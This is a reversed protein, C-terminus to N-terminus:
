LTRLVTTHKWTKVCKENRTFYWLLWSSTEGVRRYSAISLHCSAMETHYIITSLSPRERERGRFSSESINIHSRDVLSFLTFLSLSFRFGAEKRIGAHSLVAPGAARKRKLRTVIVQTEEFTENTEAQEWWGAAQTEPHSHHRSM